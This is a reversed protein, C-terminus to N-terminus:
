VLVIQRFIHFGMKLYTITFRGNGVGYENLAIFDADNGIINPEFAISLASISSSLSNFFNYTQKEYVKRDRIGDKYLNEFVIKLGMMDHLSQEIESKINNAEGKSSELLVKYSLEKSIKNVYSIIFTNAIQWPFIQRDGIHSNM